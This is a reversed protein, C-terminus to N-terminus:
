SNRHQSFRSIARCKFSKCPRPCASFQLKASLRTYSPKRIRSLSNIGNSCAFKVLQVFVQGASFFDREYPGPSEDRCCEFPLREQRTPPDLREVGWADPLYLLAKDRGSWFLVNGDLLCADGGPM